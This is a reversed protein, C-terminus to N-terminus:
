KTTTDSKAELTPFECGNQKYKQLVSEFNKKIEKKGALIHEGIVMVPLKNDKGNYKEELKKLLEYNGPEALDLHKIHLNYKQGLPPFIDKIASQSEKSEQLYFFYCRIEPLVTAMVKLYVVPNTSDNSEVYITKTM